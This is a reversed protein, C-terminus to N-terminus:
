VVADEPCVSLLKLRTAAKLSVNGHHYKKSTIISERILDWGKKGIRNKAMKAPIVRPSTEVDIINPIVFADRRNLKDDDEIGLDPQSTWETSPNEPLLFAGRRSAEGIQIEDRSLSEEIDGVISNEEAKSNSIM